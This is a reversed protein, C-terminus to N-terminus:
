HCARVGRAELEEPSDDDLPRISNSINLRHGAEGTLM